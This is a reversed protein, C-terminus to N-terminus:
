HVPVNKSVTFAEGEPTEEYDIVTEHLAAAVAPGLLLLTEGKDDSLAQDGLEQEDVVFGLPYQISPAIVVRLARGPGADQERLTETLKAKAKETVTIM